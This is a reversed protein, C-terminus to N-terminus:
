TFYLNSPTTLVCFHCSLCNDVDILMKHKGEKKYAYISNKEDWWPKSENFTGVPKEIRISTCDVILGINRILADREQVSKPRPKQDFKKRLAKNLLRRAREIAREFTAPQYGYIAALHLITSGSHYLHLLHFVADEIAIKPQKGPTRSQLSKVERVLDQFIAPDIGVLKHLSRKALYEEYIPNKNRIEECQVRPKPNLNMWKKHREETWEQIKTLNASSESTTPFVLAVLKNCIEEDDGGSLEFIEYDANSVEKIKGLPNSKGVLAKIRRTQENRLEEMMLRDLINGNAKAQRWQGLISIRPIQITPSPVSNTFTTLNTHSIFTRKGLQIQDSNAVSVQDSQTSSQSSSALQAQDSQTSSQSSSALQAQDSQTSSQSSSHQTNTETSPGTQFRSLCKPLAINEKNRATIMESLSYGDTFFSHIYGIYIFKCYTEFFLVFVSSYGIMESKKDIKIHLYQCLETLESVSLYPISKYCMKRIEDFQVGFFDNAKWKEVNKEKNYPTKNRLHVEEPTAQTEEM